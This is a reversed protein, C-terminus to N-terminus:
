ENNEKGLPTSRYTILKGMKWDRHMLWKEVADIDYNNATLAKKCEMMPMDTRERLEQVLAKQEDATM